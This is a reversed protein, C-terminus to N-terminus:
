IYFDYSFRVTNVGDSVSINRIKMMEERPVTRDVIDEDTIIINDLCERGNECMVIVWASETYKSFIEKSEGEYIVSSITTFDNEKLIKVTPEERLTRNVQISRLPCVAIKDDIVYWKRDKVECIEVAKDGPVAWEDCIFEARNAVNAISRVAIVMNDNQATRTLYDPITNDEFLRNYLFASHKDQAPHSHTNGNVKTRFRLFSVYEGEIMASVPMSQWGLGWNSNQYCGPMAPFQSVSGLRIGEGKWTYAFSDKFIKQVKVGKSCNGSFSSDAMSSLNIVLSSMLDAFTGIREPEILTNYIAGGYNIDGKFNYSRISPIFEKGEHFSVYDMLETRKQEIKAKIDSNDVALCAASLANLTILSYCDSINEGWGWGYKDAYEIWENWFAECEDKYKGTIKSILALISGDSTIKNTYYIPGACEKKFWTCSRDLMLSINEKEYRTMKDACLLYALAFPLLVFFAGNSDFIYPEERYWRMCGYLRDASDTNQLKIIESVIGEATSDDITGFYRSLFYFASTERGNSCRPLSEISPTHPKSNLMIMYDSLEFEIESFRKKIRNIM